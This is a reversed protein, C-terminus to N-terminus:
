DKQINIIRVSVLHKLINEGCTYYYKFSEGTASYYDVVYRTENTEPDTQKTFLSTEDLLGNVDEDDIDNQLFDTLLELVSCNSTHTQFLFSRLLGYEEALICELTVDCDEPLELISPQDFTCTETRYPVMYMIKPVLSDNELQTFSEAIVQPDNMFAQIDADESLNNDEITETAKNYIIGLLGVQHTHTYVDGKVTKPFGYDDHKDMLCTLTQKTKM